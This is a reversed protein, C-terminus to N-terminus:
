RTGCLHSSPVLPYDTWMYKMPHSAPRWLRPKGTHPHPMPPPRKMPSSILCCILLVDRDGINMSLSVPPLDENKEGREPKAALNAFVGDNSPAVSRSGGSALTTFSPLITPRRPFGPAGRSPEQADNRPESSSAAATQGHDPPAWGDPNARMLRQRDDPEDDDDSGDEDGFADALERDDNRLPDTHLLRRSSPSSSRSHSRFSPPPSTPPLDSRAPNLQYSHSGDEEDHANV